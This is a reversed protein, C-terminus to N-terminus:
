GTGMSEEVNEDLFSEFGNKAHTECVNSQSSNLSECSM